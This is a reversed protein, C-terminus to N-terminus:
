INGCFFWGYPPLIFNIEDKKLEEKVQNIDNSIFNGKIIGRAKTFDAELEEKESTYENIKVGYKYLLGSKYSVNLSDDNKVKEFEKQAELLKEENEKMLQQVKFFGEVAKFKNNLRILGNNFEDGLKNQFIEKIANIRTTLKRDYKEAELIENFRKLLEKEKQKYVEQNNITYDHRELKEKIEKIKEKEEM